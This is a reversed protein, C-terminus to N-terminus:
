AVLRERGPTLARGLKEEILDAARREGGARELSAGIARAREAYSRESLLRDLLTRLTDAKLHDLSIRGGAGSRELRAALGFQDAYMPVAIVPVGQTLSELVSNTGPFIAAAARELLALQPAFAVVVPAGPLNTYAAVDGNGGLTLVLQVDLTACAEAIIRFVGKSDNTMTGLSAYVLPRGDLREFPFPVSSSSVRRILGIYHFQPPLADRPFDFEASQQALQLTPSFTDYLSRIPTLNWAKRYRNIVSRLPTAALDFAWYAFRSRLRAAGTTAPGWGLTAPPAQPDPNAALANCVTVFPLNLREAMTSGAPQGQDVLLATVGATRMADPAEELLMAIEERAMKLGFRLATLGQLQSQRESFAKFAGKPHDRVGLPRFEVGEHRALDEVDLINFVTARHGRACLERAITTLGTVHSTGPPCVLGFHAM